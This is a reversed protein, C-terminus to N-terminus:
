INEIEIFKLLSMYSYKNWNALVKNKNNTTEIM